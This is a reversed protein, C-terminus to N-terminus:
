LVCFLRYYEAAYTGPIIDESLMSGQRWLLNGDADYYALTSTSITKARCNLIFKQKSERYHVKPNRKHYGRVWFSPSKDRTERAQKLDEARVAYDDRKGVKSLNIWIDGDPTVDFGHPANAAVWNLYESDTQAALPSAM